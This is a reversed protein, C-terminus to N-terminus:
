VIEYNRDGEFDIEHLKSDIFDYLLQIKDDKMFRREIRSGSVPMRFIIHCAETDDAAPEVQLAASKRM